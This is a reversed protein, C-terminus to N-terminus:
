NEFKIEAVFPDRKEVLKKIVSYHQPYEEFRHKLIDAADEFQGLERKIEAKMLLEYDSSNLIDYLMQLNNREEDSLIIIEKPISNKEVFSRLKEKESSEDPLNEWYEKVKEILEDERIRRVDNGVWWAHMRIYLIEESSLNNSNLKALYDQLEPENCDKSDKYDYIPEIERIKELKDIWLLNQCHPCKVLWPQDPLMPALRKGDTWYKAGSTNGSRISYERILGSCESCKKIITPGPIM